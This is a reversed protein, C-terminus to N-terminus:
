RVSLARGARIVDMTAEPGHRALCDVVSMYPVFGAGNQVYPKPEYQHWKLPVPYARAGQTNLLQTANTSYFIDSIRSDPDQTEPLDLDSARVMPTTIGLLMTLTVLTQTTFDVLLEADEQEYLGLLEPFVHPGLLAITKAHKRRWRVSETMEVTDLRQGMKAKVPIPLWVVNGSRDLIRNRTQWSQRSVAVTDLLVFLDAQDIMDLYGQWPLYAPQMIAVTRM